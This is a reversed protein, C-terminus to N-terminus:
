NIKSSTFHVKIKIKGCGATGWKRWMDQHDKWTKNRILLLCFNIEQPSSVCTKCVNPTGPESM